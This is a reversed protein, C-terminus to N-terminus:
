ESLIWWLRSLASERSGSEELEKAVTEMLKGGAGRGSLYVLHRVQEDYDEISRLWSVPLSADDRPFDVSLLDRFSAQSDGGSESRSKQKSGNSLIPQALLGSNAGGFRKGIRRMALDVRELRSSRPSETTAAFAGVLEHAQDRSSKSATLANQKRLPEPVSRRAMPSSVILALTRAMDFGSQRLDMSLQDHIARLTPDVPAADADFASASLKRGHVLEWLSDVLGDALEESGILSQSWEGFATPLDERSLFDVRPEAMRARGDPLEFFVPSAEKKTDVRWGSADRKLATRLLAVFSWYSDQTLDGGIMSDHCRVCRLDADMSLDALRVAVVESNGGGLIQYWDSSHENSGDILSVLTEDFPANGGFGASIAKVLEANESVAGVSRASAGALWRATIADSGRAIQRRLRNVDRLSDSSLTVGLRSKLRSVVEHNAAEPTPTVGLSQWYSESLRAVNAAVDSLSGAPPLEPRAEPVAGDGIGEAGVGNPDSSALSGDTVPSLERPSVPRRDGNTQESPALDDPKKEPIVVSESTSSENQAIETGGTGENGGRSLWAMAVISAAVGIVLLLRGLAGRSAPSPIVAVSETAVAVKPPAVPVAAEVPRALQELIRATLDPPTKRNSPITPVFEALLADIMPDADDSLEMSAFGSAEVDTASAVLPANLAEAEDRRQLAGLIQETLDPPTRHDAPNTPVFEALLADIMPDADDPISNSTQTQTM